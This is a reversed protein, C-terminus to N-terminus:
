VYWDSQIEGATLPKVEITKTEGNPRRTEVTVTENNKGQSFRATLRAAFELDADNAVGDLLTLPGGCSIM